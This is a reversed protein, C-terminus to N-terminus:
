VSFQAITGNTQLADLTHGDNVLWISQVAGSLLAWNSGNWEELAGGVFLAELNGSAGVVFSQVGTDMEHYNGDYRWLYGNSQLFYLNTQRDGAFSSGFAFSTVGTDM